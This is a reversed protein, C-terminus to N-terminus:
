RAKRAGAELMLRELPKPDSLDGLLTDHGGPAMKVLAPTFLIEEGSPAPNQDLDHVTLSWDRPDFAALANKVNTITRASLASGGTVFLTFTIAHTERTKESTMPRGRVSALIQYLAELDLPKPVPIIPPPLNKLSNTLLIATTSALWGAEHARNFIEAGPSDPLHDNSIIVSFRQKEIIDLAGRGTEAYASEYGMAALDSALQNALNRKPAVLLLRRNEVSGSDSRPKLTPRGPTRAAILVTPLLLSVPDVEFATALREVTALTPNGKGAELHQYPRLALHAESAAREQTWQRRRRLSYLNSSLRGLM